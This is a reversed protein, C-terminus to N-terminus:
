LKNNNPLVLHYKLGHLWPVKCRINDSQHTHTWLLVTNHHLCFSSSTLFCWYDGWGQRGLNNHLTRLKYWVWGYQEGGAGGGTGERGGDWMSVLKCLSVPETRCFWGIFDFNTGPYYRMRFIILYNNAKAENWPNMLILWWYRWMIANANLAFLKAIAM